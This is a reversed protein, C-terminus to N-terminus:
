AQMHDEGSAVFTCRRSEAVPEAEAYSGSATTTNRPDQQLVIRSRNTSAYRPWDPSRALKYTNPNGSRVFSLWYAFLESAFAQEVPTMPSFTTTGNYGSNTGQFMMWNEAAHEVATDNAPQTPNRQNYRYTWTNNLVSFATGMITRACRVSADGAVDRGQEIASSYESAPYLSVLGAIDSETLEPFFTNLAAAITTGIALTENSTAGVLLPVNKFEGRLISRTPYDTIIKGDVVPHFANYPGTFNYNTADQARALASVSAKRLCAMQEPLSGSGCGAYNAYFEFAPFNQEPLAVPARYVSQAIAGSFLTQNGENAVLHLEISSGGASQGNITVKTPDGGFADIYRNVWKLAQLQDRFGANNDSLIGNQFNPHSLFGFSDLRYYVSVIVVDPFQNIWHDFPQNAPNGYVYGGGHIYVLVPLNSGKTAGYPTYINVNLCDESGAGGADGAGTTGQICFDPYHTADVIQGNAEEAIRTTNLPVTARFRLDGLPPEAYPIGLYAVTNPYSVNGRYSAYGTNVINGAASQALAPAAWLALGM